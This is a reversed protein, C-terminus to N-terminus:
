NHLCLLRMKEMPPTESIATARSEGGCIPRLKSRWARSAPTGSSGSRDGFELLASDSTLEVFELQRESTAKALANILARARARKPTTM